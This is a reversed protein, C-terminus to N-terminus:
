DPPPQEQTRTRATLQQSAHYSGGDDWFVFTPSIDQTAPIALRSLLVTHTPPAICSKAHLLIRSFIIKRVINRIQPVNPISKIYSAGSQPPHFLIGAFSFKQFGLFLTIKCAHQREVRRCRFSYAAGPISRSSSQNREVRDLDTPTQFRHVTIMWKQPKSPFFFLVGSVGGCREVQSETWLCPQRYALIVGYHGEAERRGIHMTSMCTQSKALSFSFLSPFM